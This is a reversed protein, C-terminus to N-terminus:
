ILINNLEIYHFNFSIFCIRIDIIKNNSIKYNNINENKIVQISLQFKNNFDFHRVLGLRIM